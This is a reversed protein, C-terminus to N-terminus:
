WESHVAKGVLKQSSDLQYSEVAIKFEYSHSVCEINETGELRQGYETCGGNTIFQGRAYRSYIHVVANQPLSAYHQGNVFHGYILGAGEGGNALRLMEAAPVEAIKVANSYTTKITM